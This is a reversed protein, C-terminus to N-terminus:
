GKIMEKANALAHESPNEGSLMQAIAMVREQDKLEKIHTHVTNNSEKKYVFLHQDAKAAIQPQHTISILQHGNSLEDMLIGVQKAAEGSIGSDIEDFILTPMELSKAVLSKLVLMLRSLEGGSAVKHLPEFKGSKNADFLFQIDDIGASSLSVEELHVKLAANPMGVRTLLEKTASELLPIQKVRKDRLKKAISISQKELQDLTKELSELATQDQQFGKLSLELQQQIEVLEDPLQLGHKKVLKQAQSQRANLQDLRKEDTSIADVIHSLENGVDKLEVHASSLRTVLENLAAHYKVMPQLQSVLSKIEAVLPKEGENLLFAAAGATHKIQEAHTLLNLEEELSVGEGAKWSLEELENLLFQTYEKEQDAKQLSAKISDIKKQTDKYRDYLEQYEQLQELNGARADLILRQFHKNSLELTDFQQHLDVLLSTLEQLQSLGVPTDNIFARSKGNPQIERRVVTEHELEWENQEFFNKIESTAKVDFVAEIISKTNKDRMQGADAREGLALGLAGMLISKGAGTEGTIIVLGDKFQIELEQIIAFNKIFLRTLM